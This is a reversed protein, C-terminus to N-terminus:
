NRYTSEALKTLRTSWLKGVLKKAPMLRLEHLYKEVIPQWIAGGDRDDFLYHGDNKFAPLQRLQAHGGAEIFSKYLSAIYEPNSSHDNATYIWLSQPKSSKAYSEFAAIRADWLCSSPSSPRVGGHFNIIASAENTSLSSYAMTALGGTSQGIMIIPRSRYQDQKRIESIFDDIDKANELGYTTLDCGSSHVRPGTSNGYGRRNPVVVSLGFSAFFRVANLPRYRSQPLVADNTGHNIVLLPSKSGLSRKPTFVSTEFKVDSNISSNVMVVQEDFLSSDALALATRTQASASAIILLAFSFAVFSKLLSCNTTM